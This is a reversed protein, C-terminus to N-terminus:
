FHLEIESALSIFATEPTFRAHLRMAAVRITCHSCQRQEVFERNDIVLSQESPENVPLHLELPSKLNSIIPYSQIFSSCFLM